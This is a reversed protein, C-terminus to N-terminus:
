FEVFEAKSTAIHKDALTALTSACCHPVFALRGDLELLRHMTTPQRASNVGLEEHIDKALACVASGEGSVERANADLVESPLTEGRKRKRKRRDGFLM